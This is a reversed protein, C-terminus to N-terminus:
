QLQVINSIALEKSILYKTDTSQTKGGFIHHGCNKPLRNIDSQWIIDVFIPFQTIMATVELESMTHITNALAVSCCVSRNM